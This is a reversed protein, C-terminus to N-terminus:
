KFKRSGTEEILRAVTQRLQAIAFPKRLTGQVEPRATWTELGDYASVVLIPIPKGERRARAMRVLEEGSLWPMALDVILLDYDEWHVLELGELPDATVHVEYSEGDLAERILEGLTTDDDVVLIRARRTSDQGEAQKLELAM